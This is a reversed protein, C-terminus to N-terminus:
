EGHAAITGYLNARRHNFFPNRARVGDWQPGRPTIEIVRCEAESSLKAIVQGTPACLTSHGHFPAPWNCYLIHTLNEFARVPVIHSLVFPDKNAAIAVILDCGALALVRCPEPFELDWCILLGLRFGEFLTPTLPGDGDLFHVREFQKFPDWLHAKRFHALRVGDKGVLVTSIYRCLFCHSRRHHSLAVAFARCLSV